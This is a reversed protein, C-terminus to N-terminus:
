PMVNEKTKKDYKGDVKGVWTMYHFPLVRSRTRARQHRVAGGTGGFVPRGGQSGTRNEKYDRTKFDQRPHIGGRFSDPVSRQEVQRFVQRSLCCLAPMPVLVVRYLGWFYLSSFIDATRVGGVKDHM